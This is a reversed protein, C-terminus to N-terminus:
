DVSILKGIKAFCQMAASATQFTRLDFQDDLKESLKEEFVMEIIPRRFAELARETKKL